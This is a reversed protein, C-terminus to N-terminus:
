FLGIISSAASFLGGVMSKSSAASAAAAEGRAKAAQERYANEEIQGQVGIMGKALAGQRASDSLLYLATGHEGFNSAAVAAKQSGLTRDIKRQEQYEKVQTSEEELRANEDAIGAAETYSQQQAAYSQSDFIGGVLGSVGKAVGSLGGFDSGGFVGGGFSPETGGAADISGAGGIFGADSM